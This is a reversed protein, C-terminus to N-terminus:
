NMLCCNLNKLRFMVLWYLSVKKLVYIKIDEIIAAFKEAETRYVMDPMDNRIM